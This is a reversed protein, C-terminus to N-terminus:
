FSPACSPYVKFDDGIAKQLDVESAQAVDFAGHIDSAQAALWMNDFRVNNLAVLLIDADGKFYGTNGGLLRSSKARNLTNQEGQEEVHVEANKDAIFGPPLGCGALIVQATSLHAHRRM